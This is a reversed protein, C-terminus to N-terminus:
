ILEYLYQLGYYYTNLMTMVSVFATIIMLMGIMFGCIEFLWLNILLTLISVNIFRFWKDTWLVYLMVLMPGDHCVTPCSYFSPCNSCYKDYYTQKYYWMAGIESIAFLFSMCTFIYRIKNYKQIWNSDKAFLQFLIIPVILAFVINTLNDIM